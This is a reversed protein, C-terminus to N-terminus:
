FGGDFLRVKSVLDPLGLGPPALVHVSLDLCGASYVKHNPGFTGPAFTVTAGKCLDLQVILFLTPTFWLVLFSALFSVITFYEFSLRFTSSFKDQHWKCERM